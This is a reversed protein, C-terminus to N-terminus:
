ADGGQRDCVFDRPLYPSEPEDEWIETYEQRELILDEYDTM